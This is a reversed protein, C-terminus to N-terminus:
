DVELFDYDLYSFDYEFFLLFDVGPDLGRAVECRLHRNKLLDALLQALTPPCNRQVGKAPQEELYGVLLKELTKALNKLHM